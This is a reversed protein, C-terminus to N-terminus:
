KQWHGYYNHEANYNNVADVIVDDNGARWADRGLEPYGKVPGIPNGKAPSGGINKSGLAMREFEPQGNTVPRQDYSESGSDADFWDDPVKPMRVVVREM